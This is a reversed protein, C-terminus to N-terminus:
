PEPFVILIENDKTMFLKTRAESETYKENNSLIRYTRLETQLYEYRKKKVESLSIDELKKKSNLDVITKYSQVISAITILILISYITYRIIVKYSM